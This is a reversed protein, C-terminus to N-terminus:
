EAQICKGDILRGIRWNSLDDPKCKLGTAGQFLSTVTSLLISRDQELPVDFLEAIIIITNSYCARYTLLESAFTSYIYIIFHKSPNLRWGSGISM